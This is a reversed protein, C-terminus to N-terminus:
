IYFNYDHIFYIILIYRTQAERVFKVVYYNM